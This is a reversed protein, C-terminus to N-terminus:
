DNLMLSYDWTFDGTLYSQLVLGVGASGELLSYNLKSKKSTPNYSNYNVMNNKSIAYEITKLIWHEMAEKFIPNQTKHWMKNYIHAVGASGHCIGADVINTEEESVRKTTHILVNMAFNAIKDKNFVISSQYLIYSIGLDGYCWSLRSFQNESKLNGVFYPFYSSSIDNNKNKILYNIISLAIAKSKTKQIGKKYCDTANKLISTIGHAIGLNIKNKNVINLYPDFYFINLSNSSFDILSHIKNIYNKLQSEFIYEL